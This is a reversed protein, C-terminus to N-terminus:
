QTRALDECAVSDNDGDLNYLDQKGVRAFFNQAENQTSFDECDYDNAKKGLKSDTVVEGNKDYFINGDEDRQVKSEELSSGNLIEGLDFDNNTAELGFAALLIGVIGILVPKLVKKKGESLNDLPKYKPLPM